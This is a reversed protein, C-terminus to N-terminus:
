NGRRHNRSSRRSWINSSLSNETKRYLALEEDIGYATIGSQVINLWTAYDEHGVNPMEIKGIKEKDLVVTLCGIPNGKLLRKYDVVKPVRITKDLPIGEDNILEYSSFTFYCNNKKMFEIQKSLKNPKWLDDSDLFAVYKGKARRLAINRANAVGGNKEISILKIRNDEKSYDQVVQKTNDKSCDDVILMEWNKYDQNIVSEIAYRIHREANYAPTIVTVLDAVIM